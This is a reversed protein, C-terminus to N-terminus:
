KNVIDCIMSQEQTYYVVNTTATAWFVVDCNQFNEETKFYVHSSGLGWGMNVSWYQDNKTQGSKRTM